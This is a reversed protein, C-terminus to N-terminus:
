KERLTNWCSLVIYVAWLAFFVVGYIYKPATAGGLEYGEFLRRCTLGTLCLLACGVFVGVSFVLDGARVVFGGNPYAAAMDPYRASWDDTAGVSTWYLAGIMWPMGLGLLVNVANSGTVNVVSADATEDMVAATKSAFTDPLSTGMAVFTIATIADPLGLCCGFIAAVDGIVATVVGIFTLSVLFSVKGEAIVVPPIFAFLIKFPLTLLHIAWDTSTPASPNGDEDEGGHLTIALKFQDVWSTASYEFADANIPVSCMKAVLEVTSATADDSAITVECVAQTMPAQHFGYGFQAGGTPKELIVRFTEDKEFASDDIITIPIEQLAEGEMFVLEGRVPV